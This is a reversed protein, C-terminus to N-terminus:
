VRPYSECPTIVNLPGIKDSLWNPVTRGFISGANLIPVLYFSLSTDTIGSALGFYSTYFFAVYIGTQGIMAGVVFTMYPWDAFATWDIISRFRGPKIRAEMVMLPVVLTVLATLGLIRVAWEFGVRDILKYFMIPYIIGGTSSGSAAVGLALGLKTTFYTPMIAVAPVYLCGAGIGIVFGQVLLVEWYTKCLSLM